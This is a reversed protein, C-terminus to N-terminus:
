DTAQEPRVKPQLDACSQKSPTSLSGEFHEHHKADGSHLKEVERRRLAFRLLDELLSPM